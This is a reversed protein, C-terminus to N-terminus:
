IRGVFLPYKHTMIRLFGYLVGYYIGRPGCVTLPQVRRQGRVNLYVRFVASRRTVFGVQCSRGGGCYCCPRPLAVKPLLGKPLRLQFPQFPRAWSHKGVFIMAKMTTKLLGFIRMATQPTFWTHKYM